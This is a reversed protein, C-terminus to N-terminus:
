VNEFENASVLKNSKFIRRSYEHIKQIIQDLERQTLNNITREKKSGIDWYDIFMKLKDKTRNLQKQFSEFPGM